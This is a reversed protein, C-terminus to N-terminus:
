AAPVIRVQDHNGVLMLMPCTWTDLENMIANLPEVPLFAREDWFDGLFVIGAQREVAEEHVYAATPFIPDDGRAIKPTAKKPPARPKKAKATLGTDASTQTKEIATPQLASTTLGEVVKKPKGRPKKAPVPAPPPAPPALGGEVPSEPTANESGISSDNETAAHLRLWRLDEDEESIVHFDDPFDQLDFFAGLVERYVDPIAFQQVDADEWLRQLSDIVSAPLEYLELYEARGREVTHEHGKSTQGRPYELYSETRLHLEFFFVLGYWLAAWALAPQQKLAWLSGVVSDPLGDGSHERISTAMPGVRNEYSVSLCEIIFFTKYRGPGAQLGPDLPM